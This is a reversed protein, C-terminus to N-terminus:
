TYSESKIKAIKKRMGRWDRAEKFESM